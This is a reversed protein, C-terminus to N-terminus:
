TIGYELGGVNQHILGIPDRNTFVLRRMNLQCPFDGTTEIM